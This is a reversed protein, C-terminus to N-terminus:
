GKFPPLYLGQHLAAIEAFLIRYSYTMRCDLRTTSDSVSAERDRALTMKGKRGAIVKWTQKGGSALICDRSFSSHCTRWFDLESSKSLLPGYSVKRQLYYMDDRYDIKMLFDERETWITAKFFRRRLWQSQWIVRSPSRSLTLVASVYCSPDYCRLKRPLSMQRLSAAFNVM